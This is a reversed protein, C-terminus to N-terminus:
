CLRHPLADGCVRAKRYRPKAGHAKHTKMARTRQTLWRIGIVAMVIFLTVSSYLYRARAEFILEFVILMLLALSVVLSFDSSLNRQAGDKQKARHTAGALLGVFCCVLVAIWIFQAYTRWLNYHLGDPYYFSRILGTIGGAADTPLFAFFNGEVSWAFTGDNFNTMLKDGLLSLLGLFGYDSVRETAIQINGATRSQVDAFSASFEVDALSYVGRTEPNLGMMLFHPIGFQNDQDLLSSWPATIASVLALATICGVVLAVIRSAPEICLRAERSKLAEVAEFAFEVLLLAAVAFLVFVVQPKIKYGLIGVFGLLFLWAVFKRGSSKRSRIFLYSLMIPVCVVIADSYLIGAWPSTWIVLVGTIWAVVGWARSFLLSMTRYLFWLSLACAVCNLASFVLVIGLPSAAGLLQAIKGCQVAIWLLFLNNPYMSYYSVNAFDGSNVIALADNTIIGSDWGTVFAYRRCAFVQLLLLVICAAAILIDTRTPNRDVARSFWMGARGASFKIFLLLILLALLLLAWNPLPFEAKCAYSMTASLFVMGFLAVGIFVAAIRNSFSTGICVAQECLEDPYIDAKILNANGSM